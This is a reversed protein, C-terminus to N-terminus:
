LLRRESLVQYPRSAYVRYIPTGSFALLDGLRDVYPPYTVLRVAEEASFWATELSEASTRLEGELWECLFGFMLKSPPTINTYVGALAGVQVRVGAEEEIERELALTLAEGEEVQGGPFEWGRRPSRVLLVQGDGNRVLGGVAVIHTPYRAEAADSMPTEM